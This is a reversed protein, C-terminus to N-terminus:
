LIHDIDMLCGDPRSQDDLEKESLLNDEFLTIIWKYLQINAPQLEEGTDTDMVGSQSEM